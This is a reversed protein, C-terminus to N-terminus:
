GTTGLPYAIVQPPQRYHPLPHHQLLLSDDPIAAQSECEEAAEKRGGEDAQCPSHLVLWPAMAPYPLAPNM